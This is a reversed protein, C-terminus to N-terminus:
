NISEKFLTTRFYTKSEDMESGGNICPIAIHGSMWSGDSMEWIIKDKNEEHNWIHIRTRINDYFDVEDPFTQIESTKYHRHVQPKMQIEVASPIQYFRVDYLKNVEDKM